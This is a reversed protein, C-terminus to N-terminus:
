NENNFGPCKDIIHILFDQLSRTKYTGCYKCTIIKKNQRKDLCDLCVTKGNKSYRSISPKIKGCERCLRLYKFSM